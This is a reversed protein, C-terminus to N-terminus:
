APKANAAVRELREVKQSAIMPRAEAFFEAVHPTQAHAEFAALDDYVEYLLIRNPQGQVRTVDFQRCGPENEVSKRANEAILAHFREIAEPKVEFEVTLVFQGM